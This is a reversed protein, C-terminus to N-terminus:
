QRESRRHKAQRPERVLRDYIFGFMAIFGVIRFLWYVTTREFGVALLLTLVVASILVVPRLWWSTLYRWAVRRHTDGPRELPWAADLLRNAWGRRERHHRNV